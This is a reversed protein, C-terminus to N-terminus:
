SGPYSSFVQTTGDRGILLVDYPEREDGQDMGPSGLPMGPVALGVADPREELLRRVDAAPVHGEIVYGGVRATHCSMLPETIGNDLKFRIMQGSWLNEAVVRFGNEEMHRIWAVCCACASTKAVHVEPPATDARATGTWLTLVLMVAAATKLM